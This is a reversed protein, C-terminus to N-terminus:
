CIETSLGRHDLGDKMPELESFSGTMVVCKGRYHTIIACQEARELDHKCVEMLSQIVHDFTNVDDNYLILRCGTDFCTDSGSDQQEKTPM